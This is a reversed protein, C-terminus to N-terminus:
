NQNKLLSVLCVRFLFLITTLTVVKFFVVMSWKKTTVYSVGLLKLQYIFVLQAPVEIEINLRQEKNVNVYQVVDKNQTKDLRIKAVFELLSNVNM